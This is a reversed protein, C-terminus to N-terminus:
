KDGTHGFGGENRKTGDLTNTEILKAKYVKTLVLQAIRSGRAVTYEYRGHNILIVKIEGRYDSDITGPANLVTIGYTMALGSRPRVQLEYGYPISVRLGTPVVRREGSGIRVTESAAIDMGSAGETQYIPLVISDDDKTVYVNIDGNCCTM